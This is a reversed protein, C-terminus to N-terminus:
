SDLVAVRPIVDYIAAGTAATNEGVVLQPAGEQLQQTINVLAKVNPTM